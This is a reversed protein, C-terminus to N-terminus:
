IQEFSFRRHFTGYSMVQTGELAGKVEPFLPLLAEAVHKCTPVRKRTGRKKDSVIFICFGKIWGSIAPDALACVLTQKLLLIHNILKISPM